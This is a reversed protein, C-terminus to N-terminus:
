TVLGTRALIANQLATINSYGCFVKPNAGILDWNLYPLLENSNFGGIVTLIAAVVPDAFADHLQPLRWTAL